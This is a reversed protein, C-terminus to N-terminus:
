CNRLFLAIRQHRLQLCTLLLVLFHKDQIFIFFELAIIQIHIILLRESDHLLFYLMDLFEIYLYRLHVLSYLFAFSFIRHKLKDVLMFSFHQCVINSKPLILKLLSILLQLLFFVKNMWADVLINSCCKMTQLLIIFFKRFFRFFYLISNFLQLSIFNSNNLLRFAYFWFWILRELLQM